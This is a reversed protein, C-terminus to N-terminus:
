QKSDSLRSYVAIALAIDLVGSGVSEYLTIEQDNERGAIRGTLVEGVSGTVKDKTIRGEQLPILIDGAAEWLGEVHETIIKSARLVTETDIEQMFSTFSGIANVHTGANLAKGSFVPKKSTTCTCVIDAAAACADASSAGMIEYPRNKIEGIMEIFSKVRVEDIDYVYLSSIERIEQIALVQSYAQLGTGIIGLVSADKRAMLDTAVAASGGTKVATLYNADIMAQLEGTEASYLSIKSITSPLGIKPNEPFVSSFKSGFFPKNTCNAALWQGVNEEGRVPMFIRNGAYLKGEACDKYAEKAASIVMGINMVQKVQEESYINMWSGRETEGNEVSENKGESKNYGL